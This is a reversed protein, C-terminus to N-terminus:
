KDFSLDLDDPTIDRNALESFVEISRKIIPDLDNLTIANLGGEIGEQNDSMDVIGANNDEAMQNLMQNIRRKFDEGQEADDCEVMIMFRHDEDDHMIQIKM